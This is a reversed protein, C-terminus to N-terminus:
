TVLKEKRPIEFRCTPCKNTKALWEVVCQHHFVHKCIIRQSDEGEILDDLCIICQEAKCDSPCKYPQARFAALQAKGLGTCVAMSGLELLNEYSFDTLEWEGAENRTAGRRAAPQSPLNYSTAFPASSGVSHRVPRRNAVSPRSSSQVPQPAEAPQSPPSPIPLPEIAVPPTSVIQQQPLVAPLRIEEETEEPISRIVVSTISNNNNNDNNGNNNNTGNALIASGVEEELMQIALLEDIRQQRHTTRPSAIEEEHLESKRTSRIKKVIKVESNPVSSSSPEPSSPHPSRLQHPQGTAPCFKSNPSSCNRCNRFQHLQGTTSCYKKDLTACCTASQRNLHHAVMREYKRNPNPKLLEDELPARPKKKPQPKRKAAHGCGPLKGSEPIPFTMIFGANMNMDRLEEIAKEHETLEPVEIKPDLFSRGSFTPVERSWDVGDERDSFNYGHPM